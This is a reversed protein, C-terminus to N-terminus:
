EASVTRISPEALPKRHQVKGELAFLLAAIGDIRSEHAGRSPKVPRVRDPDDAPRKATLCDANWRAVPNGGHVLESNVLMKSLEQMPVTMRQYTTSSEVVELGTEAEIRQRVPEGSWKDMVVREVRFREWDARIDAHVREYDIVDGETVTIWGDRAWRSLRGSMVPDLDGVVAEPLWFRWWAEGDDFLLCWATMDLRASLDLGAVARRGALKPVMWEPEPAVEGACADWQPMVVFRSSSSQRQNLRFQRFVQEKRPDLKAEVAEQRLTQISLFSGLGPNPWFWNAEDWPDSDSPTKRVFAFVHSASAPDDAIKEARDIMDAGFSDPDNTETTIAVTLPQVRTGSATQMANWVSDDPQSLVEDMLFLHPNHGLEGLADSTIVEYYSGTAEDYIRRAHKNVRLRKRLVPSRQVMQWCPEWVKGAQKTSRAAGYVEAGKEDDGVLMALAIASALASKGNKRGVVIWAERYRRVYREFEGSWWVEGFVPRVIEREQWDELVFPRNAHPGKVHVLLNAFFGVIRDARPECHHAGFSECRKDDWTYGCVPGSLDDPRWTM